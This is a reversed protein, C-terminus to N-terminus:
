KRPVHKTSGKNQKKKIGAFKAFLNEMTVASCLKIHDSYQLPKKTCNRTIHTDHAASAKSPFYPSNISYDRVKIVKNSKYEWVM